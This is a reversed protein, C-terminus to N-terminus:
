CKASSSPLCDVAMFVFRFPFNSALYRVCRFSQFKSSHFRLAPYEGSSNRERILKLEYLMEALTFDGSAAKTPAEMKIQPPDGATVYRLLDKRADKVLDQDDSDLHSEISAVAKKWCRGLVQKVPVRPPGGRTV